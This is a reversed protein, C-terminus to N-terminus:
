VAHMVVGTLHKTASSPNPLRALSPVHMHGMRAAAAVCGREGRM